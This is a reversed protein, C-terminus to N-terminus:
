TAEALCLGGSDTVFKFTTLIQHIAIIVVVKGNEKKEKNKDM